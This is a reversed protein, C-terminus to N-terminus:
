KSLLGKKSAVVVSAALLAVLGAISLVIVSFDAEAGTIKLVPEDNFLEKEPEDKAVIKVNEGDYTLINNVAESAEQGYQLLKEKEAQPLASLEEVAHIHDQQVLKKSAEVKELVVAAQRKTIDVTKMYNVAMNIYNAPIEFYVDDVKVKEKLSDVIQQEVENVVSAKSPDTAFDNNKVAEVLIEEATSLDATGSTELKVKLDEIAAKDSDSMVFEDSKELMKELSAILAATDPAATEASACISMPVLLIAIALVILALKKM